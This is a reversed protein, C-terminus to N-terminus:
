RATVPPLWTSTAGPHSVRRMKTKAFNRFAFPVSSASGSLAGYVLAALGEDGSEQWLTDHIPKQVLEQWHWSRTRINYACTLCSMFENGVSDIGTDAQGKYPRYLQLSTPIRDLIVSRASQFFMERRSSERTLNLFKYLSSLSDLEFDLTFPRVDEGGFYDAGCSERFPGELFTKATNTAFGLYALLGIVSQAYRKRVIIDDGYVQFDVGPRGAGVAHCAATFILTELPFCFGNGMSVFKSYVSTTTGDLTYSKSRLANLFMCWDPPLLEMVVETALSDSAASLDITVFGGESDDLSGAQAMRQNKTQDRLDIGIRLLKRRMTVDVGKQVLSNLLPEVAIGRHTKATKPVFTIKNHDVFRARQFFVRWDEEPSGSSFGKHAPMLVERMQAHRMVAAFAYHLASPSVTWQSALLKRSANTQCGHVGISAGPGYGCEDLIAALPVEHGLVHTAFNRMADIEKTFPLARRAKRRALFRQNVRKCMHESKAFKKIAEAEPDFPNSAPAFPYKRILLSFQNAVFHSTADEYSQSSLSDALCLLRSVDRHRAANAIQTTFEFNPYSECLVVLVKYYLSTSGTQLTKNVNRVKKLVNTKM